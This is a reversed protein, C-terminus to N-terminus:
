QRGPGRGKAIMGELRNFSETLPGSVLAPVFPAVELERQLSAEPTSATAHSQALQSFEDTADIRVGTMDYCRSLEGTDHSRQRYCGEVQNDSSFTFTFTKDLISSPDVLLLSDLDEEWSALVPDGWKDVGYILYTDTSSSKGVQFMTYIEEFETTAITYTFRWQGSPEAFRDAFYHDTGRCEDTPITSLIGGGFRLGLMCFPTESEAVLVGKQNTVDPFLEGLFNAAQLEAPNFTKAGILSGDQDYLSLQIPAEATRMVAIGTDMAASKEVYLAFAEKPRAPLVSAELGSSFKFIAVGTIRGHSSEVVAYGSKLPTSTGDTEVVMSSNPALQLPVSHSPGGAIPLQEPNGARDHFSITVQASQDSPNSLSFIMRIGDGDGYHPFYFTDTGQASAPPISLGTVFLFLLARRFLM